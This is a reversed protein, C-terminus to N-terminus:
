SGTRETKGGISILTGIKLLLTNCNKRDLIYSFMQEKKRFPSPQIITFPTTISDQMGMRDKHSHIISPKIVSDIKFRSACTNLDLSHWPLYYM